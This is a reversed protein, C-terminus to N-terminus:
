KELLKNFGSSVKIKKVFINRYKIRQIDKSNIYGINYQKIRKIYSKM